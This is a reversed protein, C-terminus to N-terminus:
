HSGQRSTECRVRARRQEMITDLKLPIGRGDTGSAAAGMSRMFRLAASGGGGVGAGVVAREKPAYDLERWVASLDALRRAEKLDSAFTGTTTGTTQFM